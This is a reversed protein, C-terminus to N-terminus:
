VSVGSQRFARRARETLRDKTWPPDWSIVIRVADVGPVRLLRERIDDKIMEMCPCATATFTLTVTVAGGDVAVGYVLGMDVISVPWEPDAIEALAAVVADRAVGGPAAVAAPGNAPAASSDAAM